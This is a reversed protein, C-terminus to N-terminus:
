NGKCNHKACNEHGCDGDHHEHHDCKANPDYHLADSLFAQVASDSSGQLGAYLKIGVESLATQAGMGIGGCILVDVKAAQLFGALAGHGSGNTSVIQEKVVKGNEVDYLKFQETHGFHGFIEGNEYTTAIRMINDGKIKIKESIIIPSYRYNGGVIFLRKGNVLLDATKQRASEYIATVTTRSVNMRIACEEQNLGLYDLLRLVEYEDVTMSISDTPETDDPAFSRFTPLKDIMRCRTPRPM